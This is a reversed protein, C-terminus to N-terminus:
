ERNIFHQVIAEKLENRIESDQLLNWLDDDLCAYEANERLFNASPTHSADLEKVGNKWKIYYYPESNMHFFPKYFKAAERWPEFKVCAEKYLILLVNNFKIKNGIIAGKKIGEM